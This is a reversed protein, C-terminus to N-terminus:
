LRKRYPYGVVTGFTALEPGTAVYGHREYFARGLHTSTLHIEALGWRRAQAEIAGLVARGVGNGTQGPRVYCLQLDGGRHLLGLGVLLEGRYVLPLFNTPEAIWQELHETTKNSLWYRLTTEDDHHDAGCLEVISERLLAAADAADERKAERVRPTYGDRPAPM